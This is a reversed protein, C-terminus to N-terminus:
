LTKCYVYKGATYFLEISECAHWYKADDAIIKALRSPIFPFPPQNCDSNICKYDNDFTLLKGVNLTRRTEEETFHKNM